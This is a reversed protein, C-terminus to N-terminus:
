RPVLFIIQFKPFSHEKLLLVLMPWPLIASLLLLGTFAQWYCKNTKGTMLIWAVPIFIQLRADFVMIILCQYFPYLAFDFTEDVFIQVQLLQM